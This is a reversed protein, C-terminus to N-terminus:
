SQSVMLTQELWGLLVSVRHLARATSVAVMRRGELTQPSIGCDLGQELRCPRESSPWELGGCDSHIVESTLKECPGLVTDRGNM